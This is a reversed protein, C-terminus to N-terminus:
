FIRPSDYRRKLERIKKEASSYLIQDSDSTVACVFCQDNNDMVPKLKDLVARASALNTWIVWVSQQIRCCDDESEAVSAIAQSIARYDQGDACLDYAILYLM